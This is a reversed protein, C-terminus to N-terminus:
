FGIRPFLSGSQSDIVYKCNPQHVVSSTQNEWGGRGGGLFLCLIEGDSQTGFKQNSVLTCKM